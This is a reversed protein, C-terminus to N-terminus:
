KDRGFRSSIQERLKAKDRRKVDDLIKKKTKEFTKDFEKTKEFRVHNEKLKKITRETAALDEKAKTMPERKKKQWVITTIVAVVAGIIFTWITTWIKM